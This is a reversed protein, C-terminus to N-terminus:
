PRLTRLDGRRCGTMPNDLEACKCPTESREFYTAIGTGWETSASDTRGGAFQIMAVGSVGAPSCSFVVAPALGQGRVMHMWVTAEQTTVVAAGEAPAPWDAWAATFITGILFGMRVKLM